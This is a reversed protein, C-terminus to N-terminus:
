IELISNKQGFWAPQASFPLSSYQRTVNVFRNEVVMLVPIVSSLIICSLVTLKKKKVFYIYIYVRFKM